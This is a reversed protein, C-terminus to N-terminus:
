PATVTMPVATLATEGTVYRIEYDGTATPAILRAPNGDSTYAFTAYSTEGAKGLAIYDNPYNPGDWGVIVEAGAVVSPQSLLQATVPTIQIMRTAIVEADRFRYRLEYTGPEVPMLLPLPNGNEVYAYTIYGEGPKGIQIIDLPANPGTWGIMQTSGAPASEPANISVDTATVTIPRTLIAESDRFRYRIEYTGPQAPLILRVPNGTETYAYDSYESSGVPGVQINDLDADPGVWTVDIASGAPASDPASLSLEAETVSISRTTLTETDRFRYRLEYEGPEAPLTIQVPNGDTVYAFDLYSPDGPRGLEINDNPAAPGTWGVDITSGIAGSDPATLVVPAETVIIPRTVLTESDRLRYRLEYTGPQGPLIVNLPNGEQTYTFSLYAPDGPVGVEINDSNDDPGTWSVQITSGAPAQDPADITAAPLPVPLAVTFTQAGPGVIAFNVFASTEALGYDATITYNGLGLDHTLPNGAEDTFLVTDGSTLTWRVPDTIQTQAADDLVANFTVTVTVPPEPEPEPVPVPEVMIETLAALFEDANSASRLLGGTEDAICQMQRMAEADTIDFGIVHVTFDIGAQELAVAAACPDPNCTEVGDSVLIVTARDETYRLEEAAAIVADTMPTKGLPTIGAVAAAIADRTNPGPSVLSEIDTCDGRTRHGYVTLGLNQDQPITQLLDTVVRRAIEIKSEGEIQGWMSGSADLVLITNARDQALTLGPLLCLLLIAILARM